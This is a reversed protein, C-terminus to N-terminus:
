QRLQDELCRFCHIILLTLFMQCSDFPPKWISGQLHHAALEVDRGGERGRDVVVPVLGM